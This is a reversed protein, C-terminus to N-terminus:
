RVTWDWFVRSLVPLAENWLLLNVSPFFNNCVQAHFKVRSIVLIYCYTFLSMKYFWNTSDSHRSIECYLM